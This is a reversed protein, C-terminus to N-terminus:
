GPTVHAKMLLSGEFECRYVHPIMSGFGNMLEVRGTVVNGTEGLKFYEYGMNFNVKTPFKASAEITNQCLVFQNIELRKLAQQAEEEAEREALRRKREVSAAQKQQELRQEYFDVREQITPDNPLLEALDKYGELNGEIDSAPLKQVERLMAPTILPIVRENKKFRELVAILEADESANEAKALADELAKARREPDFSLAIGSIISFSLPVVIFAYGLMKVRYKFPQGKKFVCKLTYGFTFIFTLGIIGLIISIMMRREMTLKVFPGFQGWQETLTSLHDYVTM